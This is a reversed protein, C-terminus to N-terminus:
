GLLDKPEVRKIWEFRGYDRDFSVIIDGDEMASAIVCDNFKVNLKEFLQISKDIQYEYKVKVGAMGLISKVFSVIESKDSKYFRGLLWIVEELVIAPVVADFKQSDKVKNIWKTTEVQGEFLRAFVNTDIYIKM